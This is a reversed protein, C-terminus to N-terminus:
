DSVSVSAALAAQCMEQDSFNSTLLEDPVFNFTSDSTLDRYYTKNGITISNNTSSTINSTNYMNNLNNYVKQNITKPVYITEKNIANNGFCITYLADNTALNQTNQSFSKNPMITFNNETDTYITTQTNSSYNYLTNNEVKLYRHTASDFYCTNLDVIFDSKYQYNNNYIDYIKNDITVFCYTGSGYYVHIIENPFEYVKVEYTNNSYNFICTYLLKNKTFYIRDTGFINLTKADVPIEPINIITNTNNTNGRNLITVTNNRIGMLWYENYGGGSYFLNTWEASSDTKGGGIYLSNNNIFYKRSSGYEGISFNNIEDTIMRSTNDYSSNLTYIKNDKICYNPSAANHRVWFEWDTDVGQQTFTIKNDALSFSYLKNNIVAGNMYYSSQYNMPAFNYGSTIEIPDSTYIINNYKMIFKYMGSINESYTYAYAKRLQNGLAALYNGAPVTTEKVISPMGSSSGFYLTSM